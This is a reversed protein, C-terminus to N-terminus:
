IEYWTSSSVHVYPRRCVQDSIAGCTAVDSGPNTSPRGQATSFTCFGLRSHCVLHVQDITCGEPPALTPLEDTGTSKEIWPGNGGLHHLINWGKRGRPRGSSNLSHFPHFWTTWSAVHPAESVHDPAPPTFSQLVPLSSVFETKYLVVGFFITLLSLLVKLLSRAFPM